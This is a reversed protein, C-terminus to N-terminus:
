ADLWFVDDPAVTLIGHMKGYAGAYSDPRVIFVLYPCQDFAKEGIFSVQDPIRLRGVSTSGFAYEDICTLMTPITIDKLKLARYFMRKPIKQWGMPLVVSELDYCVAFIGEGLHVESCRFEIHELTEAWAFAEFGIEKVNEPIIIEQMGKIKSFAKEGIKILSAPLRVSQLRQCGAFAKEEIEVLGEPIIISLNKDIGEFASIGVVKVTEPVAFVNGIPLYCNTPFAILRTASKDYLVGSISTFYPNDEAVIIKRLCPCHVFPNGEVKEVSSPIFVESIMGCRGFADVGISRIGQPIVYRSENRRPPYSVLKKEHKHFLVGDITAFVEHKPEVYISNMQSCGIFPNGTITKLSNPLSIKELFWCTNFAGHELVQLSNPLTITKFKSERFADKKIIRLTNPLVVQEKGFVAGKGLVTIWRGKTMEPIVVKPADYYVKGYKDCHQRISTVEAENNGYPICWLWHVHEGSDQMWELPKSSKADELGLMKKIFKMIGM